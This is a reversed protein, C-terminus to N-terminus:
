HAPLPVVPTVPAGDRLLHAETVGHHALDRWHGGLWEEADYQATFVPSPRGLDDPTFSWAWRPMM